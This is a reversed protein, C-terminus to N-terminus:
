SLDGFRAPRATAFGKATQPKVFLAVVEPHAARIKQEIAAVQDEIQGSRMDDDFAISLAVLFQDPALQVSLLGNARAVGSEAAVSGLISHSLDQDAREGILLSNNEQAIFM